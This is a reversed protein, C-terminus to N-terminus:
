HYADLIENLHEVIPATTTVAAKLEELSLLQDSDQWKQLKLIGSAATSEVADSLIL